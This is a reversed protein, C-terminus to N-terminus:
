RSLFDKGKVALSLENCDGGGELQFRRQPLRLRSVDHYGVKNLDM